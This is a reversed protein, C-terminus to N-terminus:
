EGDGESGLAPGEPIPTSLLLAPCPPELTRRGGSAGETPAPLPLLPSQNGGGQQSDETKWAPGQVLGPQSQLGKGPPSPHPIHLFILRVAGCWGVGPKGWAYRLLAPLPQDSVRAFCYHQSRQM